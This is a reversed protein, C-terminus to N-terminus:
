VKKLKEKMKQCQRKSFIASKYFKNMIDESHDENLLIHGAEHAILAALLSVKGRVTELKKGKQAELYKLEALGIVASNRFREVILDKYMNLYFDPYAQATRLTVRETLFLQVENSHTYKSYKDLLEFVGGNRAKLVQFINAGDVISLGDDHIEQVTSIQVTIDCSSFVRNLFKELKIYNVEQNNNTISISLLHSPSALLPNSFAIILLYLTFSVRM